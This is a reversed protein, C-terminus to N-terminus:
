FWKQPSLGAAGIPTPRLSKAEPSLKADDPQYQKVLAVIGRVASRCLDEVYKSRSDGAAERSEFPGFTYHGAPFATDIEVCWYRPTTLRPRLNIQRDSKVQRDTLKTSIRNM